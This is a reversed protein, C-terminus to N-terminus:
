TKHKNKTFRKDVQNSEIRLIKQMKAFKRKLCAVKQTYFMSHFLVKSEKKAFRLQFIDNDKKTKNRTIHGKLGTIQQVRNQLWYAFLESATAFSIYYMYTGWRPDRYSYVSGDGDWLGRLFDLFLSDPMAVQAITRSKRPTIGISVFWKFLVVNGFQVHWSSQQKSNYKKTIKNRLKLIRKFARVLSLDKSTFSMHINDSFMCGDSAMLGIAYAFDPDLIPVKGHAKRGCRAKEKTYLKYM